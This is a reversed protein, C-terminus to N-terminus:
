YGIIYMVIGVGLFVSGSIPYAVAVLGDYKTCDLNNSKWWYGIAYGISFAGVITFIISM